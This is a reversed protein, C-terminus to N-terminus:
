NYDGSCLKDTAINLPGCVGNNCAQVHQCESSRVCPAGAPKLAICTTDCYADPGCELFEVCPSGVKKFPVCIRQVGSSCFLGDASHCYVFPPNPDTTSYTTGHFHEGGSVICADGATGRRLDHCVGTRASGGDSMPLLCAVPDTGRICEESRSCREGERLTGAFIGECDKGISTPYECSAGATRYHAVCTAFRAADVTVTGNVAEQLPDIQRIVEPECDVLPESPFSARACCTRAASCIADVLAQVTSAGAVPGGDTNGTKGTPDDGSCGAMVLTAIAAIRAVHLARMSSSAIVALTHSPRANSSATSKM